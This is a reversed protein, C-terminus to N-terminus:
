PMLLADHFARGVDGVTRYDGGLVLGAILAACAAFILGDIRDLLGGHGPILVGSDKKGFHRKIWSEFLDGAQSALSLLLAAIGAAMGPRDGLLWLIAPGTVLSGALGGFFGAWTKNPSIKPALKPGGIARGAFYAATDAAWVAAFVFLVSHLGAQSDGRLMVLALAPLIAYVLGAASWIKRHLANQWIGLGPVLAVFVALGATLGAALWVALVAVTAAQAAVGFVGDLSPRALATFERIVLLAGAVVMLQFWIGGAVTAALALAVLVLASIIRLALEPLPGAPKAAGKTV